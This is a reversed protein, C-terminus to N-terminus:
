CVYSRMRKSGLRIYCTEELITSVRLLVPGVALVFM